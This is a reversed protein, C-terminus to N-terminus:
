AALAEEGSRAEGRPTRAGELVAVVRASPPNDDVILISAPPYSAEETDTVM